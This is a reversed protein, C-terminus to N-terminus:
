INKEKSEQVYRYYNSFEVDPQRLILKQKVAKKRLQTM